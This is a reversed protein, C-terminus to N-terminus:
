SRAPPSACSAGEQREFARRGEETLTPNMRHHHRPLGFTLLAPDLRGLAELRAAVPELHGEADALEPM